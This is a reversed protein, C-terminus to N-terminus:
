KMPLVGTHMNEKEREKAKIKITPRKLFKGGRVSCWLQTEKESPPLLLYNEEDNNDFGVAESRTPVVKMM